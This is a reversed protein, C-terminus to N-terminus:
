DGGRGAARLEERIKEVRARADILASEVRSPVPSLARAAEIFSELEQIARSGTQLRNVTGEASEFERQACIARHYEAMALVGPREAPSISELREMGALTRRGVEILGVACQARGLHLYASPDPFDSAVSEELTEMASGWEGLNIHSIGKRLLARQYERAYEGSTGTPAEMRDYSARASSWDGREFARDGARMVTRDIGDGPAEATTSPPPEPRSPSARSGSSTRPPRGGAAAQRGLKRTMRITFPGSSGGRAVSLVTDVRHYSPAELRIEVVLSDEAVPHEIRYPESASVRQVEAADLTIPSRVLYRVTLDDNSLAGGTGADVAQLVVASERPPGAAPESSTPEGDTCAPVLLSLLLASLSHRRMVNM